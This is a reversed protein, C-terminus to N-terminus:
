KKLVKLLSLDFKASNRNENEVEKYLEKRLILMEKPAEIGIKVNGDAVKTITIEIDDGILFSEGEKRTIILM